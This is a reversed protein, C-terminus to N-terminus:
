DFKHSTASVMAALMGPLAWHTDYRQYSYHPPEDGSRAAMLSPYLDLVDIGAALLERIFERGNVNVCLDAPTGKVLKDAYIEEKVPSVSAM